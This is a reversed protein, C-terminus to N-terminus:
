NEFRKYIYKKLKEYIDILLNVSEYFQNLEDVLLLRNINYEHVVLNRIKRLQKWQEVDEIIRLKELKNLVDIFALTEVDEELLLLITKFLKQSITDQLKAFRFILSDLISKEELNMNEFRNKSLPFIKKLNQLDWEIMEKHYECEKLINILIENM